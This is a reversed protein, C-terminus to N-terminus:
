RSQMQVTLSLEITKTTWAHHLKQPEFGLQVLPPQDIKGLTLTM